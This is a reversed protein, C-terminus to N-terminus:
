VVYKYKIAFNCMFTFYSIKNRSLKLKMRENQEIDNIRDQPM